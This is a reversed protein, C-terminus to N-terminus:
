SFQFFRREIVELLHELFFLDGDRFMSNIEFEYDIGPYKSIGLTWHPISKLDIKKANWFIQENEIATQMSAKLGVKRLTTEIKSLLRRTEITTLQQYFGGFEFLDNWNIVGPLPCNNTSNAPIGEIMRVICAFLLSLCHSNTSKHMIKCNVFKVGKITFINLSSTLTSQLEEEHIRKRFLYYKLFMNSTQTRYIKEVPLLKKSGLCSYLSPNKLYKSVEFDIRTEQSFDCKDRLEEKALTSYNKFNLVAKYYQYKPDANKTLNVLDHVSQLYTLLYHYAIKWHKPDTVIYKIKQFIVKKRELHIYHLIAPLAFIKLSGADIIGSISLQEVALATKYFKDFERLGTINQKKLNSILKYQAKRFNSRYFYHGAQTYIFNLSNLYLNRFSEPFLPLIIDHFIRGITLDNLKKTKFEMKTLSFKLLQLFTDVSQHLNTRQVHYALFGYINGYDVFVVTLIIHDFLLKKFDKNYKINKNNEEDYYVNDNLLWHTLFNSYVEQTGHTNLYTVFSNIIAFSNNADNLKLNYSLHMYNSLRQLYTVISITEILSSNSLNALEM